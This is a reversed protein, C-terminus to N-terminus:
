EGFSHLRYTFDFISRVYMCDYMIYLTCVFTHIYTIHLYVYTHVVYMCVYTYKTVNMCKVFVCIYTHIYTLTHIYSANHIYVIFVFFPIFFYTHCHFWRSRLCIHVISSRYEYKFYFFIYKNKKKKKLKKQAFYFPLVTGIHIFILIHIYM